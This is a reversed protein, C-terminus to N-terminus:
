LMFLKIIFKQIINYDKDERKYFTEKELTIYNKPPEQTEGISNLIQQSAVVVRNCKWILDNNNSQHPLMLEYIVYKTFDVFDVEEM